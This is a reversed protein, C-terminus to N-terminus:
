AAGGAARRRGGADGGGIEDSEELEVAGASRPRDRDHARGASADRAVPAQLEPDLAADQSLTELYGSIVTLPSRLEHSANAVFDKRMAELRMQRSVDRALLLLQGEGYPAMQMRCTATKGAASACCWRAPSIALRFIDRSCRSACCITSACGWITAGAAARSASSGHPQALHDRAACEPHGRWRAASRHLTPDAAAAAPLTAQPLTQASAAARGAGDGRGVHRWIIRTSRRLKSTAGVMRLPVPQLAALRPLHGSIRCPRGLYQRADMGLAIWHASRALLRGAAFLWAQTAVQM